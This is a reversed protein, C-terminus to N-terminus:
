SGKCFGPDSVGAAVVLVIPALFVERENPLFGSCFGVWIPLPPSPTGDTQPQGSPSLCLFSPPPLLLLSFSFRASSDMCTDPQVM